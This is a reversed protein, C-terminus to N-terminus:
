KTLDKYSTMGGEENESWVIYYIYFNRRDWVYETSLNRQILMPTSLSENAMIPIPSGLNLWSIIQTIFLYISLVRIIISFSAGIFSQYKDSKQFSLQIPAGFFDFSKFFTIFCKLSKSKM